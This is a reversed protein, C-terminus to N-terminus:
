QCSGCTKGRLARRGEICIIPIAALAAVPDVWPIHFFANVLLGGLTVAALYACTASQAADAVLAGNAVRQGAARKARALMPMIALAAITIAVGSWSAGAEVRRALAAASTLMILGALLFLLFGSIRSARAPALRLFPSFQLLVVAASLLEVFSDSGFALLAPSHARWASFLAVGCEVLMWALTISQLLVVRGQM